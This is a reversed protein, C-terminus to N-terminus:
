GEVPSGPGPESPGDRRNSWRRGVIAGAGLFVVPIALVINLVPVNVVLSGVVLALWHNPEGGRVKRLLYSGLVITGVASAVSLFLTGGLLPVVSVLGLPEPAGFAVLSTAGISLLLTGVVGGVIVGIGLAGSRLPRAYIRKEIDRVYSGSSRVNSVVLVVGGVVVSIAVYIAYVLVGLVLLAATSDPVTEPVSQAAVTAPVSALLLTTWALFQRLAM